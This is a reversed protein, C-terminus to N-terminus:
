LPRADTAHGPFWQGRTGPSSTVTIQLELTFQVRLFFYLFILKKLKLIM